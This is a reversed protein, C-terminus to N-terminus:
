HGSFNISLKKINWTTTSIRDQDKTTQLIVRTQSQQWSYPFLIIQFNLEMFESRCINALQTAAPAFFIYNTCLFYSSILANCIWTKQYDISCNLFNDAVAAQLLLEFRAKFGNYNKKYCDTFETQKLFLKTSQTLTNCHLLM